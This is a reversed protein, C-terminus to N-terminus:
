KISTSAAMSKGIKIKNKNIKQMHKTFRNCFWKDTGTFELYGLCGFLTQISNQKIIIIKIQM